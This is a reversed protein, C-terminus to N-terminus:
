VNSTGSLIWDNVELLESLSLDRSTDLLLPLSPPSQAFSNSTQPVNPPNPVTLLSLLPAPNPRAQQCSSPKLPFAHFDTQPSVSYSQVASDQLTLPLFSSLPNSNNPNNNFPNAISDCGHGLTAVHCYPPGVNCPAPIFSTEKTLFEDLTDSFCSDASLPSNKHIIDQVSLPHAAADPGRPISVLSTSVSTVNPPTSVVAPEDVFLSHAAPLTPLFVSSVTVPDSSSSIFLDAPSGSSTTSPSLYTKEVGDPTQRRSSGNSSTSFSSAALLSNPRPPPVGASGSRNQCGVSSSLSNGDPSSCQSTSARLRCHPKHRELATTYLLLDKKLAAIDKQLASNSRELRQLEQPCFPLLSVFFHTFSIILSYLLHFVISLFVLLFSIIDLRTLHTKIIRSRLWLLLNFVYMLLSIMFM